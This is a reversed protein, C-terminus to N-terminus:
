NIQSSMNLVIIWFGLVIVWVLDWLRLLAISHALSFPLLDVLLSEFLFGWGFFLVAVFTAIEWLVAVTKLSSAQSDRSINECFAWIEFVM